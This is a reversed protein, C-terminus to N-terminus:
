HLAFSSIFYKFIIKVMTQLNDFDLIIHCEFKNLEKKKNKSLLIFFCWCYKLSM